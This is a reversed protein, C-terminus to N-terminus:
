IGRQASEFTTDPVGAVLNALWRATRLLRGDFYRRGVVQVGVPLGRAGQLLPLTVSPVGTLTWIANFRTPDIFKDHLPAEGPAAPVVIADYRDFIECLGTYLIERWNKAALYDPASVRRGREIFERTAEDLVDAAREAYHRLSAALEAQVVQECAGVAEAFIPPLDIEDCHSGLVHSLEGFGEACDDYTDIGPLAKLLAVHPVVPPVATAIDLLRPGPCAQTDPDGPDYGSIVDGLLAVDPVTRAIAGVTSVSPATQLTGTRPATGFTPRYGTVGCYSASQILSGGPDAAVALPTVRLAVAAACGAAAAGASRESDHPNRTRAAVPVGCESTAAKGAVIAGAARLRSVVWADNAVRNAADLVNGRGAPMRRVDVLDSVAVPLGHLSGLPRGSKRFSDMARAQEIVDSADVYAWAHVPEEHAGILGTCARALDEASLAGSEIRNRAEVGDLETPDLRGKRAPMGEAVM